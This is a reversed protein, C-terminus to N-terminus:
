YWGAFENFVADVWSLARWYAGVREPDYSAHETDDPFPTTMPVGYPREIIATDLGLEALLGHLRRDFAAVSLGDALECSAVRGDGVRVVLRHDSFDLDISFARGDRHLRRTTLGRVDVYLPVHWWHNRPTTSRLRVKGVIQVYLHLTTKSAEWAELPLEPLDPRPATQTMPPSRPTAPDVPPAQRSLVMGM